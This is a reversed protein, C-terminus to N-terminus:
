NFVWTGRILRGQGHRSNVSIYRGLKASSIGIVSFYFYAELYLSVGEILNTLAEPTLQIRGRIIDAIQLQPVKQKVGM